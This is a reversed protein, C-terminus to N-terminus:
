QVWGIVDLLDLISPKAGSGRSTEEEKTRVLSEDHLRHTLLLDVVHDSHQWIVEMM